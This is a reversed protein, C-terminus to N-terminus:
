RIHLVSVVIIGVLTTPKHKHSEMERAVVASQAVGNDVAKRSQCVDSLRAELVGQSHM